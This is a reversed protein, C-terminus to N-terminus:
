LHSTDNSFFFFSVELSFKLQMIDEGGGGWLSAKALCM